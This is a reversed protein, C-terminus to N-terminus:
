PSFFAKNKSFLKLFLLKGYIFVLVIYVNSQLHQSYAGSLISQTLHKKNKFIRIINQYYKKDVHLMAMKLKNNRSTNLDNLDEVYTFKDKLFIYGSSSTKQIISQGAENCLRRSCVHSLLFRESMCEDSTDSMEGSTYNMACVKKEVAAGEM